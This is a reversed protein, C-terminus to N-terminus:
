ENIGMLGSALTMYEWAWQDLIQIFLFPAGLKFYNWLGSCSFTRRDPFFNAEKMDSSCTIFTKMLFYTTANTIIGAMALGKIGLERKVIMENCWVPHLAVSVIFAIMPMTNKRFCNLFKRYLDCLGFLFLGPMYNVVYEETLTSV